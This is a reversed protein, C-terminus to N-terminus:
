NQSRRWSRILPDAGIGKSQDFRRASKADEVVFADLARIRALVPAPVVEAPTSDESLWSPVLYLRGAAM